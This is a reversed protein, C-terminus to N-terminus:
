TTKFHFETYFSKGCQSFIYPKEGDHTNLHAKLNGKCLCAKECYRCQHLKGRIHKRTHKQSNSKLVSSNECYGCKLKEIGDQISRLIM